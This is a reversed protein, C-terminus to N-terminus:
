EVYKLIRAPVGGVVAKAPVNKTVVAGAAVICGDGLTVGALITAHSGIWVNNGLRIPAPFMDARSTVEAAHNLTAFVVQHGILCNDGIFIGGQDQFCCGANIFVNKGVTINKGFDAYIPPFLSFGEGPAKGTLQAFLSTIEESTHFKGNIESTVRRANEAMSHMLMHADSGAVLREQRAVKARFTDLDM